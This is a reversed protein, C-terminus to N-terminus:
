YVGEVNPVPPANQMWEQYRKEIKELVKKCWGPKTSLHALDRAYVKKGGAVPFASLELVMSVAKERDGDNMAMAMGMAKDIAANVGVELSANLPEEQGTKPSLDEIKPMEEAPTVEYGSLAMIWSFSLRCAKGVARTQAMSAIAYELSRNSPEKDSCIAEGAGVVLGSIHKLVIRAEYAIEHERDLKRCYETQPFIGLMAAMTTWGEARVYKKGQIMNYLKAKEVLPALSNAISTAKSIIGEPEETGFVLSKQASDVIQLSQEM